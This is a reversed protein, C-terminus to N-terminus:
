WYASTTWDSDSDTTTSATLSGTINTYEKMESLKATNLTVSVDGSGAGTGYYSIFLEKETGLEYDSGDARFIELNWSSSDPSVIVWQKVTNLVSTTDWGTNKWAGGSLTLIIDIYKNTTSEYTYNYVDVSISVAASSVQETVKTWATGKLNTAPYHKPDALTGAGANSDTKDTVFTLSSGSVTYSDCILNYTGNPKGFADLSEAVIKGNEEAQRIIYDPESRQYLIKDGDFEITLSREWKGQLNAPAQVGKVGPDSGDDDGCAIAGFGIVAAIAIVGIMKIAKKM